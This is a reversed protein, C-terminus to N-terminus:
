LLLALGADAVEAQENDESAFIAEDMRDEAALPQV